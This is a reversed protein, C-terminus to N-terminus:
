ELDSGIIYGLIDEALGSIFFWENTFTAFLLVLLLIRFVLFLLTHTNKKVLNMIPPLNVSYTGSKAL